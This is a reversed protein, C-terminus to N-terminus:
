NNGDNLTGWDEETGPTIVGSDISTMFNIDFRVAVERLAPTLYFQKKEM